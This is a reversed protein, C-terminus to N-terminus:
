STSTLKVSGVSFSVILMDSKNLSSEGKLSISMVFSSMMLAIFDVLILEAGPCSQKGAIRRCLHALESTSGKFAMIFFDSRVASIGSSHFSATIVGIKLPFPSLVLGACYLGIEKVEWIMLSRSRMSLTYRM